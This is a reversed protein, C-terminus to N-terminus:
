VPDSQASSKCVSRMPFVPRLSESKEDPDRRTSDSVNAPNLVHFAVLPFLGNVITDMGKFREEPAPRLGDEPQKIGFLMPAIETVCQTVTSGSMNRVPLDILTLELTDGFRGMMLPNGDNGLREFHEGEPRKEFNYLVIRKQEGKVIHEIGM